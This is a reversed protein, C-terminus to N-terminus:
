RPLTVCTGGVEVTPCTTTSTISTTVTTAPHPKDTTATTSSSSSSSSRRARPRTTTTTTGAPTVPTVIPRNPDFNYPPCGKRLPLPEKGDAVRAESTNERQTCLFFALIEQTSKAQQAQAEPGTVREVTHATRVVPILIALLVGILIVGLAAIGAIVYGMWRARRQDTRINRLAEAVTRAEAAAELLEAAEESHPQSKPAM